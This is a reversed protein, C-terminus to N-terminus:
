KRIIIRKVYIACYNTNEFLFTFYAKVFKQLIKVASSQFRFDSKFDHAIERVLKQFLFKRILFKTSKQYRRIERLVIMKIRINLKM